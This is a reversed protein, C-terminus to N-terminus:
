APPAPQEGAWGFLRGELLTDRIRDREEATLSRIVRAPNGAVVSGPPVDRTVVSGAGVLSHDGITVGPLVIAGYAIYVFRGVRCPAGGRIPCHALLASGVGIVSYDGISVLHPNVGDILGMLRVHEGILTGRKRHRAVAGAFIAPDVTGTSLPEEIRLRRRIRRVLDGIM